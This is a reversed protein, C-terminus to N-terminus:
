IGCQRAPDVTAAPLSVDVQPHSFDFLDMMANANADRATLAPINFKTEIFKIVSTHDYIVHSVYHRKAFPSIVVLPVRFGDRDFGAKYTNNKDLMPPISDPVCAAPPSVHDFFGGGEDYMLFVATNKWEPSNILANIQTAVLSQGEQIDGDPHEDEGEFTFDLFSVQPLSGNKIDKTLDASTGTHSRNNKYFTTFLRLYGPGDEYYKWSVGNNNFQEFITKQTFGNNDPMDNQVHGFSTGTMMYFRNPFTPGLVASFYRDGIAFRDALAYYYPIDTEDFYTMVWSGNNIVFRDNAGHDWDDHMFDWAHNPDDPCLNQSHSIPILGGKGDPNSMGPVHGDVASGYHKPDSLHGFYNDFSHNEQMIVIVHEVPINPDPTGAKRTQDPLSGAKHSCDPANQAFAQFTVAFALLSVALALRRM